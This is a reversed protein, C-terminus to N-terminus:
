SPQRTGNAGIGSRAAGSRSRSARSARESGAWAGLDMQDATSLSLVDFAPERIQRYRQVGLVAQPTARRAPHPSRDGDVHTPLIPHQGYEEFVGISRGTRQDFLLRSPEGPVKTHGVRLVSGGLPVLQALVQGLQQAIRRDLDDGTM